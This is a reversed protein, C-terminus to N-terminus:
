WRGLEPDYNRFRAGALGAERILFMGAFSFDAEVDGALKTRRGYPDYAYRARIGGSSDTLERISGLHDRTYFYNGANTGSELRMGQPFFRKTVVGAPDREECIMGGRWVFRRLSVEVANVLHRIAVRRSLGDYT